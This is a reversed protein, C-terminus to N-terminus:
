RRIIRYFWLPNISTRSLTLFRSPKGMLIQEKKGTKIGNTLESIATPQDGTPQYKSVLNFERNEEREIM